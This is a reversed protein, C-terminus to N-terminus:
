GKTSTKISRRIRPQKGAPKPADAEPAIATDTQPLGATGPTTYPAVSGNGSPWTSTYGPILLPDVPTAM